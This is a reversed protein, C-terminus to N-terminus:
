PQVQCTAARGAGYGAHYLSIGATLLLGVFAVVLVLGVFAEADSELRM